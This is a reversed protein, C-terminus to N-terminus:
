FNSLTKIEYILIQHVSRPMCYWDYHLKCLIAMERCYKEFQGFNLELGSNIARLIARFKKIFVTNLNTMKAPVEYKDFFTRASNDNNVKGSGGSIPVNM